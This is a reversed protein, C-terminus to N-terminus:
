PRAMEGKLISVTAVFWYDDRPPNLSELLEVLERRYTLRLADDEPGTGDRGHLLGIGTGGKEGDGVWGSISPKAYSAMAYLAACRQITSLREDRAVVVLADFLAPDTQRATLGMLANLIDADEWRLLWASALVPAADAGCITLPLIAERAEAVRGTQLGARAAECGRRRMEARSSDQQAGLATASLLMCAGPICARQVMATM